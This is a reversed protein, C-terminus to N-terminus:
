FRIGYDGGSTWEEWAPKTEEAGLEIRMGNPGLLYVFRTAGHEDTGWADLRYGADQLSRSDADLDDSWYALHHLGHGPNEAVSWLGSEAEIVEWQPRGQRSAAWRVHSSEEGAGAARVVHVPVERELITSWDHGFARSLEELATELRDVVVGVHWLHEFDVAM